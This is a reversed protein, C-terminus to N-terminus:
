RVLWNACGHHGDMSGDSQQARLPPMLAFKRPSARPWAGVGLISDARGVRFGPAFNKCNGLATWGCRGVLVLSPKKEHGVLM